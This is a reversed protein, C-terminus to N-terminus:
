IYLSVSQQTHTLHSCNPYDVNLSTEWERHKRLYTGPREQRILFFYNNLWNTTAMAVTYSEDYANNTALATHSIKKKIWIWNRQWSLIMIVWYNTNQNQNRPPLNSTYQRHYISAIYSKTVNACLCIGVGMFDNNDDDYISFFIILPIVAVM